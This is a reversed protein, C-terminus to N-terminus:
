SKAVREIVLYGLMTLMMCCLGIIVMTDPLYFFAYGTFGLEVIMVTLLLTNIFKMFWKDVNMM